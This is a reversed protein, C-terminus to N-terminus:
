TTPRVPEGLHLFHTKFGAGYPTPTGSYNTILSPGGSCTWGGSSTADWAWGLYGIKHSDAWSMISDVYSQGCDTEGLEGFLVPVRTRTATISQLCSSSCPSSGGYTHVSAILQNDPDKPENSLWGSLDFSYDLGGILLPQRAGTGRVADVLQQMGAAEYTPSSGQAAVQCGHLWCSWSVGYPENYLDFILRHNFRFTRAVSKWFTPAHDADPMPELANAVATGPATWHLDLIVFLDAAQLESVYRLIAQRYVAGAFPSKVNIGLWCDENLPVRVVNIDWSQMGAILASSDPQDPTPSDFVGSGKVCSYETGSRSVGRLQVIQGSAGYVIQNGSVRLGTPGAPTVINVVVIVIVALLVIAPAVIVVQTSRNMGTFAVPLKLHGNPPGTKPRTAEAAPARPSLMIGPM